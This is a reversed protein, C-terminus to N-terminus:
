SRYGDLLRRLEKKGYAQMYDNADMGIHPIIVVGCGLESGAEFAANQGTKSEDNDAVIVVSRFFASETLKLKWSEYLGTFFLAAAKTGEKLNNASFTVVVLNGTAEFISLGTAMGECVYVMNLDYKPPYLLCFLGLPHTHEIYYKGFVNAGTQIIRQLGRIDGASNYMPFLLWRNLSDWRGVYSNKLGKAELYPHVGMSDAKPLGYFYGEFSGIIREEAEKERQEDQKMQKYEEATMPEQICTGDENFRKATEEKRAMDCLWWSLAGDKRQIVKLRGNQHKDTRFRIFKNLQIQEPKPASKLEQLCTSIIKQKQEDTFM